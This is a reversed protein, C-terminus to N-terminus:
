YGFADHRAIKFIFKLIIKGSIYITAGILLLAWLIQVPEGSTLMNWLANGFTGLLGTITDWRVERFQQIMLSWDINM